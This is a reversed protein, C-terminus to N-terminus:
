LGMGRTKLMKHRLPPPSNEGTEVGRQPRDKQINKVKQWAGLIVGSGAIETVLGKLRNFIIRDARILM